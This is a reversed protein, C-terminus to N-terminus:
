ALAGCSVGDGTRLTVMAGREVIPPMSEGVPEM